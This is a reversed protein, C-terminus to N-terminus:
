ILNKFLRQLSIRTLGTHSFYAGQKARNVEDQDWDDVNSNILEVINRDELLSEQRAENLFNHLQYSNLIGHSSLELLLEDYNEEDDRNNTPWSKELIVRINDVNLPDHRETLSNAMIDYNQRESQLRSLEQDVIELVASIRYISRRLNEPVSDERKYQLKHSAAAWIHQALTRVQIEFNIDEMGKFSPLNSWQKPIQAVYHRSKYGFQSETLLHRKDETEIINFIESLLKDIREADNEFLTIMRIGIIDKVDNLDEIAINKRDFKEIISDVSKIRHEMPVGLVIEERDIMSSLQSFLQMELRRFQDLRNAYQQKLDSVSLNENSIQPM